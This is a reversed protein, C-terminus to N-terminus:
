KLRASQDHHIRVSPIQSPLETRGIVPIPACLHLQGLFVLPRKGGQSRRGLQPPCRGSNPRDYENEKHGNRGFSFHLPQRVTRGQQLFVQSSHRCALQRWSPLTLFRASKSRAISLLSRPRSKPFILIPVSTASGAMRDRHLLLCAPGDLEFDNSVCSGAQKGPQLTATAHEINAKRLRTTAPPWRIVGATHSAPRRTPSLWQNSALPPRCENEEGFWPM